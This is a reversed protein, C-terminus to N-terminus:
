RPSAGLSFIDGWSVPETERDVGMVIGGIRRLVCRRRVPGNESEYRFGKCTRPLGGHKRTALGFGRPPDDPAEDLTM